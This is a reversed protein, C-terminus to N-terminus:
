LLPFYLDGEPRFTLVYTHRQLRGEQVRGLNGTYIQRAGASAVPQASFAAHDDPLPVHGGLGGAQEAPLLDPVAVDQRALGLHDAVHLNFYRGFGTGLSGLDEDVNVGLPKAGQVWYPPLDLNTRGRQSALEVEFQWTGAQVVAEGILGPQKPLNAASAGRGDHL